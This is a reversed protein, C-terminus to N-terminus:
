EGTLRQLFLDCSDGLYVPHAGYVDHVSLSSRNCTSRTTIVAVSYLRAELRHEFPSTDISPTHREAGELVTDYDGLPRLDKEECRKCVEVLAATVEKSAAEDNMGQRIRLNVLKIMDAMCSGKCGLTASTEVLQQLVPKSGELAYYHALEPEIAALEDATMRADGSLQDGLAAPEPTKSKNAAFGPQAAAVILCAAALATIIRLM